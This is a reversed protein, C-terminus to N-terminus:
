TQLMSDDDVARMRKYCLDKASAIVCQTSMRLHFVYVRNNHLSVVVLVVLSPSNATM